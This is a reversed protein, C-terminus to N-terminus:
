LERAGVGLNGKLVASHAALDSTPNQQENASRHSTLNEQGAQAPTM